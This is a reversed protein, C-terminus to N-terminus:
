ERGQHDATARLAATFRPEIPDAALEAAFEELAAFLRAGAGDGLVHAVARTVRETVATQARGRETLAIMRRRQDGPDAADEVLGTAALARTLKIVMPHSLRLRYALETVGLTGTERLLLLLSISRAPGEFGEQRLVQTTAELIAESQRRLRHALFAPGLSEVFDIM